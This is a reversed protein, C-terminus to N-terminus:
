CLHAACGLRTYFSMALSDDWLRWLGATRHWADHTCLSLMCPMDRLEAQRQAAQDDNGDRRYLLQRTTHSGEPVRDCVLCLSFCSGDIIIYSQIQVTSLLRGCLLIQDHCQLTVCVRVWHFRLSSRLHPLPAETNYTQEGNFHCAINSAISINHAGTCIHGRHVIM